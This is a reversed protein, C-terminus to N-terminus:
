FDATAHIVRKVVAKNEPPIETKLESEIIEMSRAEIATPDTLIM